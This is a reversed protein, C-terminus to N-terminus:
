QTEDVVMEAAVSHIKPQDSHVVAGTAGSSAAAADGDHVVRM